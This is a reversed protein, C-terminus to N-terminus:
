KRVRRWALVAFGVFFLANLVLVVASGEIKFVGGSLLPNGHMTIAYLHPYDEALSVGGLVIGGISNWLFHMLVPAVLSGTAELVATMFLSMLVINACPLWGAELAGGHCFLFLATTILAALVTNARRQLLRYLYGRVLLEQMLTNFFLALFWLWLMSVAQPGADITMHGTLLLIGVASGIWCFGALLGMGVASKTIGGVIKLQRGEILWGVLTCLVVALFPMLEAVFRWVAPNSSESIPLVTALIAWGVFFIVVKLLTTLANKMKGVGGDGKLSCM